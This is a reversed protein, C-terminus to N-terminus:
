WEFVQMTRVQVLEDTVATEDGYCQKLVNKVTNETAVVGFFAEGVPTERLLTQVVAARPDLTM